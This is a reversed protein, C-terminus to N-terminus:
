CRRQALPTRTTQTDLVTQPDITRTDSVQPKEFITGDVVVVTDSGILLNVCAEGDATCREAVELAKRRANEEVYEAPSYNAQGAPPRTPM